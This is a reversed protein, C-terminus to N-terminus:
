LFEVAIQPVYDDFDNSLPRVEYLSSRYFHTHYGSRMYFAFPQRNLPPVTLVGEVIVEPEGVWVSKLHNANAPDVKIFPKSGNLAVVGIRRNYFRKYNELRHTKLAQYEPTFEAALRRKEIAAQMMRDIGIEDIIKVGDSQVIRHDPFPYLAGSAHSLKRDIIFINLFEDAESLFGGAEPETM